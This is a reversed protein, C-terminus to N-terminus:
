HVDRDPAARCRYCLVVEHEVLDVNQSAGPLRVVMRWREFHVRASLDIRELEDGPPDGKVVDDLAAEVLQDVVLLFVDLDEDLGSGGAGCSSGQTRAYM